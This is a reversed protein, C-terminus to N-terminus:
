LSLSTLYRAGPELMLLHYNWSVLGSGINTAVVCGERMTSEHFLKMFMLFLHVQRSLMMEVIFKM